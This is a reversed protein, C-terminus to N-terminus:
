GGRVGAHHWDARASCERSRPAYRFHRQFEERIFIPTSSVEVGDLDIDGVRDMFAVAALRRRVEHGYWNKYSTEERRGIALFKRFAEEFDAARTLYVSDEGRIQGETATVIYFRPIASFWYPKSMQRIERELSTHLTSETVTPAFLTATAEAVAVERKGKM